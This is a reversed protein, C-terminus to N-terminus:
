NFGTWSFLRRTQEFLEIMKTDVCVVRGQQTHFALYTLFVDWQSM